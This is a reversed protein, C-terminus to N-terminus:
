IILRSTTTSPSRRPTVEDGQELGLKYSAWDRVEDATTKDIVLQVLPERSTLLEKLKTFLSAINDMVIDYRTKEIKRIVNKVTEGHEEEEVADVLEGLNDALMNAIALVNRSIRFAEEAYGSFHENAELIQQAARQTTKLLEDSVSKPAEESNETKPAHDALAASRRTQVKLESSVV